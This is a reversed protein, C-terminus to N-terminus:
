RGGAGSGQNGPRTWRFYIPVGALIVALGVFSAQLHEVFTVALLAGALLIFIGPLVPYGWSQYPSREGRRRFGFLAGITLAYFLWASFLTWTYLSEFNGLLAYFTGFGALVLLSVHPTHFREHARGLARAARNPFLEPDRALAFPARAGTLISSNLTAFVSIMIAAAVVGGGGRGILRQAMASAVNPAAAIAAPHLVFIYALNVVAYIVFIVFLGGVIARPINREPARIESGALTIDNWGDYAWLAAMMAAAFGGLTVPGPLRQQLHNWHGVGFSFAAVTLGAVLLLKLVTFLALVRGGYLVGVYNIAAVVWILAVALLKGWALHVPLWRPELALQPWIFEAARVFATAITAVSTPRIIWFMSWGYLFSLLGGTRGGYGDRLFVYEGGAAPRLAGLEAYGLAGCLSLFGGVVWVLLIWGLSHVAKMMDSAVLFIGTGIVTGVVLSGSEIIGLARVLGDPGIAAQNHSPSSASSM